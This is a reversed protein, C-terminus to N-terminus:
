ILRSRGLSGRQGQRSVHGLTGRPHIQAGIDSRSKVNAGISRTNIGVPMAIAKGIPKSACIRGRLPRASFCPQGQHITRAGDIGIIAALNLHDRDIEAALRNDNLAALADGLHNDLADNTGNPLFHPLQWRRFPLRAPESM